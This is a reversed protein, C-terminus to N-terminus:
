PARRLRLAPASQLDTTKHSLQNSELWEWWSFNNARVVLHPNKKIKEEFYHIISDNAYLNSAWM